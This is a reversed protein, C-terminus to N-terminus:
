NKAVFVQAHKKGKWPVTDFGFAPNDSGKKLKEFTLGYCNGLVDARISEAPGEVLCAYHTKSPIDITSEANFNATLSDSFSDIGEVKEAQARSLVIYTDATEM